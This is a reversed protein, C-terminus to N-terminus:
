DRATGRSPRGGGRPRARVSVLPKRKAGRGPGGNPRKPSRTKRISLSKCDITTCRSASSPSVTSTIVPPKVDCCVCSLRWSTVAAVREYSAVHLSRRFGLCSCLIHRHHIRHLSFCCDYSLGMPGSSTSTNSVRLAASGEGSSNASRESLVASCTRHNLSVADASMGRSSRIIMSWSPVREGSAVLPPVRETFAGGAQEVNSERPSGFHEPLRRTALPTWCARM